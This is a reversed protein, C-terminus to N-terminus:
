LADVGAPIGKEQQVNKTIYDKMAHDLLTISFAWGVAKAESTGKLIGKKYIHDKYAKINLSQQINKMIAIRVTDGLKIWSSIKDNFKVKLATAMTDLEAVAAEKNMNKQGASFVRISYLAHNLKSFKLEYQTCKRFPKALKGTMIINGNKDLIPNTPLKAIDGIEFGCLSMIRAYQSYVPIEIKTDLIEKAKRRVKTDAENKVKEKTASNDNILCISRKKYACATSAM